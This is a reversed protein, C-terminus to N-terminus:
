HSRLSRQLNALLIRPLLAPDQLRTPPDVLNAVRFLRETITTDTAAAQLAANTIGQGIRQRLSHRTAAALATRDNHQNM